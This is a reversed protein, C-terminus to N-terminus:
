RSGRLLRRTKCRPGDPVRRYACMAEGTQDWSRSGPLEVDRRKPAGTSCTPWTFDPVEMAAFHGGQAAEKWRTLNYGREVWTRLPAPMRPDPCTTVATSVVVRQGPAMQRLGEPTATADYFASSGFADSMVYIMINTLLQDDTFISEIPSLSLANM